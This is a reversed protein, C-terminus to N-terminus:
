GRVPGHRAQAASLRVLLGRRCIARQGASQRGPGDREPRAPHCIRRRSKTESSGVEVCRVREPPVPFPQFRQDTAGGAVAFELDTLARIHIPQRSGAYVSDAQGDWVSARGGVNDFRHAGIEVDMRGSFPVLHIEFGLLDLTREEGASLWLLDFYILELGGGVQPRVIPSGGCGARIVRTEGRM